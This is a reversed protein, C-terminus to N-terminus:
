GLGYLGAAQAHAAIRDASLISGYFLAVEGLLGTVSQTVSQETGLRIRPSTLATAFETTYAANGVFMGNCYFSVTKTSADKIFHLIYSGFRPALFTPGTVITTATLSIFPRESNDLGFYIANTSAANNNLQFFPASAGPTTSRRSLIACGTWSGSPTGAGTPDGTGLAYGAATIFLAYLRARDSPCQPAFALNYHTGAVGQMTLNIGASGYDTITTGSTENLKYYSTPSDALIEASISRYPVYPSTIWVIGGAQTSDAQPIQGNSGVALRTASNAGNGVILDGKTTVPSIANFAAAATTQGTGGGAIPLVKYKVGKADTSDAVLPLDNAGVPVRANTTSWGWLDGKTTLPSTLGTSGNAAATVHGDADVTINASTYSGPTVGSADHTVIPNAPDTNDVTIPATGTVSAVAGGSGNPVLTYVTTSADIVTVAPVYGPTAGRPDPILRDLRERKTRDRSM